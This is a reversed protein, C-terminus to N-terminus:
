LFEYVMNTTRYLATAKKVAQKTFTKREKISLFHNNIKRPM